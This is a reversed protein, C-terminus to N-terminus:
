MSICNVKEYEMSVSFTRIWILKADDVSDYIMINFVIHSMCTGESFNISSTATHEEGTKLHVEDCGKVSIIGSM